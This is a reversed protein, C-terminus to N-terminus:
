ENVVRFTRLSMDSAYPHAGAALLKRCVDTTEKTIMEGPMLLPIGPPYFMVMEACTRGAAQDFSVTEKPALAADRPLAVLPPIPPQVLVTSLSEAWKADRPSRSVAQLGEVLRARAIQDDQPSLVYVVSCWDSM